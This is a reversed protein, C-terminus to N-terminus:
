PACGRLDLLKRFNSGSNDWVEAVTEVCATELEAQAEPSLTEWWRSTLYIFEYGSEVFLQITPSEMLENWVDVDAVQPPGLLAGTLRGTVVTAEGLPGFMVADEPLTDWIQAMMTADLETYGDALQTTTAATFQVGAIVAGGFVMLALSTIALARTWRPWTLEADGLMLVLLLTWIFLAQWTLRSIDRDAEYRFFIPILFGTWGMFALVAFFWGESQAKRWAWQAAWVSFLIVPGIEFLAVLVQLPSFLSLAGLHSSPIAPPWRLSFGLFSLDMISFIEAGTHTTASLSALKSPAALVIGDFVAGTASRWERWELISRKLLETLTGGQLFAVPVSVALAALGQKMSADLLDRRRWLIYMATLGAGLVFLAYTAEWALAWMAFLVALVAVAAKSKQRAAVLWALLFFLMSFANPGQHSLVFPDMIGNVFAFPYPMPPGGDIPWPQLLAQSFPLNIYTSTGRLTILADAGLLIGPPLLLLLYRTGSALALVTAAVVGGWAARIHRQGVLGALLLALAWVISKALDFASWPLMGGLRMLSGGFVHFGYHYIFNVQAGREFEPPINGSAILSILSLNKQEDFIALGKSFRLFVYTLALGAALWLWASWDGWDLAPREGKWAFVMGASLVVIAALPYAIEPALWHGLLNAFWTFGVLGVGFGVILRENRELRFAHAAALWGGLWWIAMVALWPLLSLASGDRFWYM